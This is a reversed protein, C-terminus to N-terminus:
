YVSVEIEITSIDVEQKEQSFNYREVNMEEDLSVNLWKRQLQSLGL